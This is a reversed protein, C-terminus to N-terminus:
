PKTGPVCAKGSALDACYGHVAACDADASCTKLCSGAMGTPDKTFLASGDTSSTKPLGASCSFGTDCAAGGVYCAKICYGQGSTSDYNCICGTAKDYDAKVCPDGLKKAYTNPAKVCLGDEVQCKDGGTCDADAKCGGFCYGVGTLKGSTDKGWGYVNCVDKGQCGTPAAGSDDFGCAGICIGGTGTSLCVGKDMDCGVISTGDGPDCDTGICVPTPYLTGAKFLKNSCKNIGDGTTDCATDDTCPSGTTGGHPPNTVGGETSTADGGDLPRPGDHNADTPPKTTVVSDGGPTLTDGTTSGDKTVDGGGGGSSSCGVSVMALAAFVGLWHKKM